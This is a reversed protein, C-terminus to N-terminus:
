TVLSNFLPLSWRSAPSCRRLWSSAPSLVKAPFSWRARSCLRYICRHGRSFCTCLSILLSNNIAGLFDNGKDAALADKFNDLTVHTAKRLPISPTIRTACHQSWWGIFRLWAGFVHHLHHWRLPRGSRDQVTENASRGRVERPQSLELLYGAMTTTTAADSAQKPQSLRKPKDISTGGAIDAGLFKILIFAVAFIFALLHAHVHSIRFQQERMDEVVLQSITATPSNSSSSIMIVPLDYMRLADLTRFLIAVMLAPKVLPLTIHIFTQWRSAGDIRAAEYVDKPIMQLGALILLAM